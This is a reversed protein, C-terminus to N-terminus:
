QLAHSLRSSQRPMKASFVWCASPHGHLIMCYAVHNWHVTRIEPYSSPTQSQSLWHRQSKPSPQHRSTSALFLWASREQVRLQRPSTQRVNKHRGVHKVGNRPVYLGTLCSWVFNEKLSGATMWTSSEWNAACNTYYRKGQLSKTSACSAPWVWQPHYTVEFHKREEIVKTTKCTYLAM